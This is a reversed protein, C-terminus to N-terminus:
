GGTSMDNGVFDEVALRVEASFQGATAAGSSSNPARWWDDSQM